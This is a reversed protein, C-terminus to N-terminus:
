ETFVWSTNKNPHNLRCLHDLALARRWEEEEGEECESNIILDRQSIVSWQLM